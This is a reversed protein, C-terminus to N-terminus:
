KKYVKKPFVYVKNKKLGSDLLQKKTKDGTVTVIDVYKLLFSLLTRKYKPTRNADLEGGILGLIIPKKFLKALTFSILGWPYPNFAVVM